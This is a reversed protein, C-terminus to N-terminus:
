DLWQIGSPAGKPAQRVPPVPLVIFGERWHGGERRPPNGVIRTAVTNREEFALGPLGGVIAQLQDHNPPRSTSLPILAHLAAYSEALDSVRARRKSPLPKLGLSKWAAHPYSEVLVREPASCPHAVTDLRRWGRRCLGDYVDLCFEAFARYTVPKVVGPLGTKAATNLQRESVRARRKSPLPKLGLSKWAAHPYSEVLVREPASGPQAVTDLRRWGRRCLGDYVDLCFEAFARYTVPKVVGPLGTKAATNLQRESVRSHELGNSNSKWAQPGDLMIVRVGRVTCLHNLQGALINADVPGSAQDPARSPLIECHITAGPGPARELM